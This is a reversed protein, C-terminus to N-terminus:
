TNRPDFATDNLDNAEVYDVLEDYAEQEKSDAWDNSMQRKRALAADWKHLLKTAEVSVDSPILKENM